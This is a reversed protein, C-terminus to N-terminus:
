EPLIWSKTQSPVTVMGGKKKNLNGSGKNHVVKWAQKQVVLSCKM